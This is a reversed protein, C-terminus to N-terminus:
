DQKSDLGGALSNVEFRQTNTTEESRKSASLARNNAEALPRFIAPRAARMAQAAKCRSLPNCSTMFIVRKPM